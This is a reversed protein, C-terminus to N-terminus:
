SRFQNLQSSLSDADRLLDAAIRTIKAIEERNERSLDAMGSVKSVIERIKRAMAETDGLNQRSAEINRQLEESVRDISGEIAESREALRSIDDSNVAIIEASDSISQIVVSITSTIETLSKQTREALKRVEDAVVAFGRGHEGARAAEIAANLALLNTQEAIDSIIQLVENVSQAEDSLQAFRDTLESSMQTSKHVEDAILQAVERVNKLEAETKRGGELSANAMELTTHLSRGIENATMSTEAAIASATESQGSLTTAAENLVATSHVANGTIQKANNVMSEIKGIFQNLYGSATGIEDERNLVPLRKTLDGEGEALDSSVNNLEDIPRLASRGTLYNIGILVAALIVGLLSFWEMFRLAIDDFYDAKNVGPVIWMKWPAIYRYAVIKAQGTTASTYEYIGGEPHAIIRAGYSTEKLSSGEKTPHAILVGRADILYVYGTRGVKMTRISEKFAEDRCAEPHAEALYTLSKQLSKAVSDLDEEMITKISGTAIFYAVIVSVIAAAVAAGLNLVFKGKITKFLHM